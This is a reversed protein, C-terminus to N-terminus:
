ASQAAAASNRTAEQQFKKKLESMMSELTGKMFQQMERKMKYHTHDVAELTEDRVQMVERLILSADQLSNPVSLRSIDVTM